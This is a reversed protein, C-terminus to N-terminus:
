QDCEKAVTYEVTFEHTENIGDQSTFEIKVPVFHKGPKNSAKFKFHGIGNYNVIIPIGKIAIKPQAARSFSGVGATIEIAERAKVYSSSQGVITSFSSFYGEGDLSGIKNHCYAITKNEIIKINNQLKALMASTALLTSNRFFTNHFDNETQKATDFTKTVLIINKDFDYRISSDVALIDERYKILRAFLENTTEVSVKSTKKFGEIYNFINESLKQIEQAKPLWIGAREKTAYDRSKEGLSQLIEASSMNISTNSNEMSEQLAKIVDKNNDSKGSCSSLFLLVSLVVSNSACCLISKM